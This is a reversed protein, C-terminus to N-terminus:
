RGNMMIKGLSVVQEHDPLVKETEKNIRKTLDTTDKQPGIKAVVSEISKLLRKQLHFSFM